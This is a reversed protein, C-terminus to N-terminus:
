VRRKRTQVTRSPSSLVHDVPGARGARRGAPVRTSWRIRVLEFPMTGVCGHKGGRSGSKGRGRRTGRRWTRVDPGRRVWSSNDDTAPAVRRRFIRTRAPSALRPLAVRRMAHTTSACEGWGGHAASLRATGTCHLRSRSASRVLVCPVVTRPSDTGHVLLFCVTATDRRTCCHQQRRQFSRSAPSRRLVAASCFM